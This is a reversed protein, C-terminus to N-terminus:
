RLFEGKEISEYISMDYWFEGYRYFIFTFLLVRM